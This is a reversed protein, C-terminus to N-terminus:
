CTFSRRKIFSVIKGKFRKLAMLVRIKFRTIVFEHGDLLLKSVVETREVIM